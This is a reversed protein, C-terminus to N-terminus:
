QGASARQPKDPEPALYPALRALMGPSDWAAAGVVRFRMRGDRDILVSTPLGEIKFDRLAANKSDLYVGLNKLGLKRLFPEVVDGGRRDESIALVTLRDGLKAQLRDLSPMEEVCPECWTAWLNVLVARGRFDALSKAEGARTTFGLGPAPQPPDLLTFEYGADDSQARIAAMPATSAPHEAPRYYLFAGRAAVCLVLLISLAGILRKM